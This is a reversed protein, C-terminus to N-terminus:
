LAGGPDADAATAHVETAAEQLVQLYARQIYATRVEPQADLPCGAVCPHFRNQVHFRMRARYWSRRDPHPCRPSGCSGDMYSNLAQAWAVRGVRAWLQRKTGKTFRHLVRRLINM